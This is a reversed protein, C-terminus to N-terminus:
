RGKSIAASSAFMVGGSARPRAFVDWRAMVQNEVIEPVCGRRPANTAVGIAGNNRDVVSNEDNPETGM